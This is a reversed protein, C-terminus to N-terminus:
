SNLMGTRKLGSVLEENSGAARREAVIVRQGALLRLLGELPIQMGPVRQNIWYNSAFALLSARALNAPL